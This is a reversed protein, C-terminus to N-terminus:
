DPTGSRNPSVLIEFIHMLFVMSKIKQNLLVNSINDYKPSRLSKVKWIKWIELFCWSYVVCFWFYIGCKQHGTPDVIKSINSKRFTSIHFIINQLSSDMIEQFKQLIKTIFFLHLLGSKTFMKSAGCINWCLIPIHGPVKILWKPFIGFFLM